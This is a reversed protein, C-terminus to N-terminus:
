AAPQYEPLSDVTPLLGQSGCFRRLVLSHRVNTRRNDTGEHRQEHPHHHHATNPIKRHINPHILPLHTNSHHHHNDILHYHAHQHLTHRRHAAPHQEPKPNTTRGPVRLISASGPRFDPASRVFRTASLK